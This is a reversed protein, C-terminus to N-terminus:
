YWNSNENRKKKRYEKIFANVDEEKLGAEEAREQAKKALARFKEIDPVKLVKLMILDGYTYVVLKDGSEISLEKRISVPIAIQGKSTVTIINADM